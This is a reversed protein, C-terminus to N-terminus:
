LKAQKAKKAAPAPKKRRAADRQKAADNASSRLTNSALYGEVYAEVTVKGIAEGIVDLPLDDLADFLVCSKGAHIQKGARAFAAEFWARLAADNYVTFLFLTSDVRRSALAALGLPRRDHTEPLRSLPVYWSIMGRRMGEEYGEPLHANIVDRVASVVARRPPPLAALYAAVSQTSKM